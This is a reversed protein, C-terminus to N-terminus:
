PEFHFPLPAPVPVAVSGGAFSVRLRASEVEFREGCESRPVLAGTLTITTPLAAPVTNRGGVTACVVEGGPGLLDLTWLITFSASARGTVRLFLSLASGRPSLVSGPVPATGAFEFEPRRLLDATPLAEGGLAVAAAVGGALGAGIALPPLISKRIIEEAAVVGAPSFGAPVPPVLPAGNPVRVVIPAAVEASSRAPDGCEAAPTVAVVVPPTATEAADKARMVIRYEFGDLPRTPRPLFASWEAGQAAMGVSYWAGDSRARFQLQAAAVDGAPAGAAAIRTYRDYPVCRLPAHDIAIPVAASATRAGALTLALLVGAGVPSRRETGGVRSLGEPM